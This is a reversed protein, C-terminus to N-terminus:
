RGGSPREAVCSSHRSQPRLPPFESYDGIPKANAHGLM